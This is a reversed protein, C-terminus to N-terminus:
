EVMLVGPEGCDLPKTACHQRSLLRSLDPKGAEGMPAKIPCELGVEAKTNVHVLLLAAAMLLSSLIRAGFRVRMIDEETELAYVVGL